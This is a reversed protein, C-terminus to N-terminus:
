ITKEFTRGSSSLEMFAQLKQLITKLKSNPFYFRVEYEM